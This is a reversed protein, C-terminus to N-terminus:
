RGKDDRTAGRDIEVDRSIEKMRTRNEANGISWNIIQTGRIDSEPNRQM